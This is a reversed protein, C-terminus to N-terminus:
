LGHHPPLLFRGPIVRIALVPNPVLLSDPISFSFPISLSGLVPWSISVPCSTLFSQKASIDLLSVPTSVHVPLHVSIAIVVTASISLSFSASIPISHPVFASLLFQVIVTGGWSSSQWFVAQLPHIELAPRPEGWARILHKLLGSESAWWILAPRRAM